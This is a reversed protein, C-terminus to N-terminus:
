GNTENTCCSAAGYNRIVLNYVLGSKTEFKIEGDEWFVTIKDAPM